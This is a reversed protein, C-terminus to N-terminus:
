MSYTCMAKHYISLLSPMNLFFIHDSQLPSIYAHNFGHVIKSRTVHNRYFFKFNFLMLFHKCSLLSYHNSCRSFPVEFFSVLFIMSQGGFTFNEVKTTAERSSLRSFMSHPLSKAMSLFLQFDKTLFEGVQAFM